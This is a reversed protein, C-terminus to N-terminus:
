RAEADLADLHEALATEVLKSLSSGHDIAAHKARRILPPPLYVNFQQKEREAPQTESHTPQNESQAAREDGHAAQEERQAAQEESQAPAPAKPANTAAM